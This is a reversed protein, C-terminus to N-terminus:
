GQFKGGTSAGVHVVDIYPELGILFKESASYSRGTEIIYIENLGLSNIADGNELTSPFREYLYEPDEQLFYNQYNENYMQQTYIEGEFQGTVMSALDNAFISYGGQNYRLDVILKNINESKFKGFAENLKVDDIGFEGLFSSLYLYGIKIGDVTFVENVAIPKEKFETKTVSILDGSSVLSGNQITSLGLELNDSNFINRYNDINIEVGNVESILDGRKLGAIDAPGDLSVFIVSAVVQSESEPAYVFQYKFGASKNSGQFERELEEYDDVIWSFRDVDDAVLGDYFLDEPSDWSELYDNLDGQTAFYDDALEPIKSKYLYVDNMAKWVFDKIELKVNDDPEQGPLEATSKDNLDDKSCSVFLLGALFFLLLLTKKM